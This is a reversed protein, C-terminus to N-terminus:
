GDFQRNQFSYTPILMIVVFELIFYITQEQMFNEQIIHYFKQALDKFLGVEGEGRIVLTIPKPLLSM